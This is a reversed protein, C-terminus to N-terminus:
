TRARRPDIKEDLLAPLFSHSDEAGASPAPLKDGLIAATTALVDAMSIMDTCTSEVPVKGPWRVVFPVRFGGDFVHTKGGRYVGNVALGAKVALMEPRTAAAPEFIGGNDSTFIVLTDQTLHQKELADLVRGVTRDLEHIWDGFIGAASSGKTDKSPTVPEHVAVPAFYLFFPKDRKQQGIWKVAQDTLEPMVHDDKRRPADIGIPKKGRGQQMESTYTASFNDDDPAPGPLM